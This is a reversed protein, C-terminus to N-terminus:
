HAYGDPLEHAEQPSNSRALTQRDLVEEVGNTAEHHKGILPIQPLQREGRLANIRDAQHRDVATFAQLKGSHM